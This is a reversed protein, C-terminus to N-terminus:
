LFFSLVGAIQEPNKGECAIRIDAAARYAKARREHLLRHKEEPPEPGGLLFPPLEGASIRKWATQATTELYILAAGGRRSSGHLLEMAPKNDIIGGGAALIRQGSNAPCAGPRELFAALAGYEAKRFVEEGETYLARPSKGAREEILADLDFFAANGGLKQALAKGASTKGSHKPGLLIILM